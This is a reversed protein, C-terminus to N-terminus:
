RIPLSSHVPDGGFLQRYTGGGRLLDDHTGRETVRGAELVLIEDAHALGIPDHTILLLAAHGPAELLDDM